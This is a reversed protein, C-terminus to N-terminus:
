RKQEKSASQSGASEQLLEAAKQHVLGSSAHMARQWQLRANRVDGLDSYAQGLRLLTVPSPHASQAVVGLYHRIAEQCQGGRLDAYGAAEALSVALRRKNMLFEEPSAGPPLHFTQLLQGASQIDKRAEALIAERRAGYRPPFDPLIEAMLVLAELNRPDKSLLEHGIATAGEYSNIDMEAQMERLRVMPLLESRAYHSAFAEAAAIISAPAQSEMVRGFADLEGGTRAQPGNATSPFQSIASQPPGSRLTEGAIWNAGLALLLCIM